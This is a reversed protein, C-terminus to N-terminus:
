HVENLNEGMEEQAYLDVNKVTALKTLLSTSVKKQDLNACLCCSSGREACHQTLESRFCHIPSWTESTGKYFLMSPAVLQVVM